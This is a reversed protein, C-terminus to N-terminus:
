KLIDLIRQVFAAKPMAGVFKGVVEGDRFVIYAPIGQGGHERAIKRNKDIDLRAVIFSERYESAVADVTPKM